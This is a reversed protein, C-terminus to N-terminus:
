AMTKTTDGKGFFREGLNSMEILESPPAFRDGLKRRFRNLNGLVQNLGIADIVHLPGGRHPAFGTGLVMALDIAWPEQVIGEEHCRVAQALMSYVLRRQILTLGDDLFDDHL